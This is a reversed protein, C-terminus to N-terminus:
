ALLNITRIEEKKDLYFFVPCFPPFGRSSKFTSAAQACPTVPLFTVVAMISSPLHREWNKSSELVYTGNSM